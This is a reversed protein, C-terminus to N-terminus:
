WWLYGYIGALLIFGESVAEECKKVMTPDFGGGDNDLYFKFDEIIKPLTKMVRKHERDSDWDVIKNSEEVFLELRPVLFELLFSRLDWTEVDIPHSYFKRVKRILREGRSFHHRLRWFM